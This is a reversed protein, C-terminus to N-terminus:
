RENRIGERSYSEAELREQVVANEQSIEPYCRECVYGSRMGDNWYVFADILRNEPSVECLCRECLMPAPLKRYSSNRCAEIFIQRIAKEGHQRIFQEMIDLVCTGTVVMHIKEEREYGDTVIM